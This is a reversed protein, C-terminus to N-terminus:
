PPTEGNKGAVGANVRTVIIFQSPLVGDIDPVVVIGDACVEDLLVVGIQISLLITMVHIYSTQKSHQFALRKGLLYVERKYNGRGVFDM